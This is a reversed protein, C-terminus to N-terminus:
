SAESITINRLDPAPALPNSLTLTNWGQQLNVRAEVTKFAGSFSGTSLKTFHETKENNIFMYLDRHEGSRYEVKINYTGAVPAYVNNLTVDNSTGGIWRTSNSDVRTEGRMIGDMTAIQYPLTEPVFQYARFYDIEFEKPYAINPDFPGTWSNNERKEYVGLYTLMPYAPSMSSSYKLEGDIFVKIGTPKWEFGYTHFDASLDTGTSIKSTWPFLHLWDGWPHIASQATSANHRGLIEFIDIEGNQRSKGNNGEPLDQNAGTMWWASHVGGGNAAKARLEFYGYKQLHGRFAETHQAIDPYGTWKHLYDKQYTQISSVRTSGDYVPDWPLQDKTVRLKLTGNSIEYNAKTGASTSWHPLYNDTFLYPNLATGNFEASATLILKSKQPPETELEFTEPEVTQAYNSM